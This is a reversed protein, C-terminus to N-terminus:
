PVAKRRSSLGVAHYVFGASEAAEKVYLRRTDVMVPRSSMLASVHKLDVDRFSTHDTMIVLCDADNACEEISMSRNAGLSHDSIPDFVAVRAGTSLMEGIVKRSPSERTDPVDAKYAVGLVAINSTALAKGERRLAESVIEVVHISMSDNQRRAALILDSERGFMLLYPDKTLCPGGVGPGPKLISVRPHTNAAEIVELADSGNEECIIALLNAFAVNLDRYTNEALKAIEADAVAVKVIKPCVIEFLKSAALTDSEGIGAVLRTNTSLEEISVGPSIREPSYALYFDRSATLGSLSELKPVVLSEMIGPPLTSIVVVLKGKALTAGVDSISSVLPEMNPRYDDGIPTPVAILVADVQKLSERVDSSATLLGSRIGSSVLGDLGPEFFHSRGCSVSETVRSNVDIATVRFGKSSFAVATPLGVYGCGVVGLRIERSEIKGILSLVDKMGIGGPLVKNVGVIM